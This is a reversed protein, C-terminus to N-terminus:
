IKVNHDQVIWEGSFGLCNRNWRPSTIRIGGVYISKAVSFGKSSLKIFFTSSDITLIRPVLLHSILFVMKSRM